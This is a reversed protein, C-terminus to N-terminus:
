RIIDSGLICRGFSTLGLFVDVSHHWLWSYMPLHIRPESMMRYIYEQSQCWETSTNKVRVDNPLHIRPESMMRHIYKQSQCWETSTNKARIDKPLHIGPESMMRYIYEQSQYWETSTNKARIDNPLHIRPELMMRYIYEQGQCWETSRIIDSDLICRGFSTLALFVDVSHHWLWSYM